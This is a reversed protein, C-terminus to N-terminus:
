IRFCCHLIALPPAAEALASLDIARQSAVSPPPMPTVVYLPTMLVAPLVVSAAQDSQHGFNCHEACLKGSPPDMAGLMGDCGEMQVSTPAGTQDNAKDAADMVVGASMDMAKTPLAQPCAYAAIAVQGYLLAGVLVRCVQRLSRRTM